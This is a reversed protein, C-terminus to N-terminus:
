VYCFSNCFTLAVFVFSLFSRAISMFLYMYLCIRALLKYLYLFASVCVCFSLLSLVLCSLCCLSIYHFVICSFFVCLVSLIILYALVHVVFRCLSFIILYCLLSSVVIWSCLPLCPFFIFPCSQVPFPYSMFPSSM